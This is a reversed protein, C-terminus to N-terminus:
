SRRPGADAIRARGRDADRVRRLRMVTMPAHEFARRDDLLANVLQWYQTAKLDFREKIVAEKSGAFKYFSGALDLMARERDSLAAATAPAVPIAPPVSPTPDFPAASMGIM